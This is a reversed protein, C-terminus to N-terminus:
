LAPVVRDPLGLPATAGEGYNDTVESGRETDESGVAKAPPPDVNRAAEALRESLARAGKVDM